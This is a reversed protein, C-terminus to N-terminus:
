KLLYKECNTIQDIKIVQSNADCNQKQNFNCYFFCREGVKGAYTNIVGDNELRFQDGIKLEKILMM